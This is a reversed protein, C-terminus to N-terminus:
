NNYRVCGSPSIAEAGNFPSYISGRVGKAPAKWGAPKLIDGTEIKVFSHVCEGSGFTETQIVKANVKGMKYSFTPISMPATYGNSEYWRKYIESLRQLYLEMCKEFRNM